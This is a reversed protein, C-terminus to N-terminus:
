KPIGAGHDLSKTNTIRRLTCNFCFLLRQGCQVEPMTKMRYASIYSKEPMRGKNGSESLITSTALHGRLVNM